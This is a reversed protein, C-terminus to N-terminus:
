TPVKRAGFRQMADEALSYSPTPAPKAALEPAPKASPEVPRIRGLSPCPGTGARCPRVGDVPPQAAPSPAPRARDDIEVCEVTVTRGLVASAAAAVDAAGERVQVLHFAHYNPFFGLTLKQETEEVIRCSRNLMAALRANGRKKVELRIAVMRDDGAQAPARAAAQSPAAPQAAPTSAEEVRRQPATPAPARNPATAPDAGAAARGVPPPQAARTERRGRQPERGRQQERSRQPEGRQGGRQGGRQTDRRQQAPPPAAEAVVQAPGYVIDALALELPLPQYPDSRVDADAFARLATVAVSPDVDKGVERLREEEPKSLALSGEAGTLLLLVHRLHTVVQKKFRMFDIADSQVAGIVGLGARLDKQLAAQVLELARADPSLGLAEQAAELSVEDGCTTWLQDLLNVADRLSGTSERAILRLADDGILIQEADAITRLRAVTDDVAVRRFDFRQCRSLVTPKLAEPDTTALIFVVHPPPEELTKLLADAAAGTLQHM